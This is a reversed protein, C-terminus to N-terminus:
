YPMGKEMELGKYKSCVRYSVREGVVGWLQFREWGELKQEFTGKVSLNDMLLRQSFFYEGLKWTTVIWNGQKMKRHCNDHGSIVCNKCKNVTQGRFLLSWSLLLEVTRSRIFCGIGQVVKTEGLPESYIGTNAAGDKRRALAAM